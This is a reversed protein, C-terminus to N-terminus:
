AKQTLFKVRDVFSHEDQRKSLEARRLLGYTSSVDDLIKQEIVYAGSSLFEEIGKAFVDIKGSIENRKLSYKSELHKYILTTAEDGFIQRLVRDIIRSIKDAGKSKESNPAKMKDVASDYINRSLLNERLVTICV